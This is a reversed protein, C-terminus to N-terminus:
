GYVANSVTTLATNLANWKFPNAWPYSANRGNPTRLQSIASWFMSSNNITNNNLDHGWINGTFQNVNLIPNVFFRAANVGLRKVFKLWNGDL